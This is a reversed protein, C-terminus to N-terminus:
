RETDIVADLIASLGFEFLEERDAPTSLVRALEPDAVDDAWASDGAPDEVAGTRVISRELLVSGIVHMQLARLALAAAAGHCGLAALEKAIATHTPRFVLPTKGAAHAVGVLAHHALLATRLQRALSVIRARPTRGRPRVEGLDAVLHDALAELVAERNGVHWYVSTVAVGLDDALRRMTLADLGEREVIRTAAEVVDLAGLGRTPPSM